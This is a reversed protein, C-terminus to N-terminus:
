LKWIFVIKMSVESARQTDTSFKLELDMMKEGKFSDLSYRCQIRRIIVLAAVAYDHIECCLLLM